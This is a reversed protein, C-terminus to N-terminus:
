EYIRPRSPRCPAASQVPVTSPRPDPHETKQQVSEDGQLLIECGVDLDDLEAARRCGGAGPIVTYRGPPLERPEDAGRKAKIIAALTREQVHLRDISRHAAASWGTAEGAQVTLSFRAETREEYARLGTDAALGVIATSSSVTGAANLNEMKCQGIAERAYDLRRAPGAASTEPRSTPLSLYTQPGAPPLYESRRSLHPAICEAQKLTERVAGATFDTTSATGHQRGFAVTISLAGRRQNVNQIVQNNAFRTTGGHVDRLSLYTHDGTSHSMVLEALFEFEQRGTLKPWSPTISSTM